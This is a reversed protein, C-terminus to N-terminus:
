RIHNGLARPCLEYNQPTTERSVGAPKDSCIGAKTHRAAGAKRRPHRRGGTEVLRSYSFLCVFRQKQPRLKRSYNLSFGLKRTGLPVRARSSSYSIPWVVMLQKALKRWRASLSRKKSYGRAGRRLLSEVIECKAFYFSDGLRAAWSRQASRNKPAPARSNTPWYSLQSGNPREPWGGRWPQSRHREARSPQAKRQLTGGPTRGTM